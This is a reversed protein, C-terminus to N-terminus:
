LQSLLIQKPSKVCFYSMCFVGVSHFKERPFKGKTIGTSQLSVVSIDRVGAVGDLMLTSLLSLHAQFVSWRSHQM